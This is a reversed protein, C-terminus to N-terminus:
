VMYVIDTLTAEPGQAKKQLVLIYLHYKNHTWVMRGDLTVKYMNDSHLLSQYMFHQILFLM